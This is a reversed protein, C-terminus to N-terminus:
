VGEKPGRRSGQADHHTDREKDEARRRPAQRGGPAPPTPHNGHLSSQPDDVARKRQPNPRGARTIAVPRVPEAGGAEALESEYQAIGAKLMFNMIETRTYGKAHAIQDLKEVLLRGAKFSTTTADTDLPDRSPVIPSM